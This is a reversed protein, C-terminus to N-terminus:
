INFDPDVPPEFIPGTNTALATIKTKFLQKAEVGGISTAKVYFNFDGPISKDIKLLKNEM